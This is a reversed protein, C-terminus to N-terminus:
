KQKLLRKITLIVKEDMPEMNSKFRAAIRGKRDILFKNFNWSIEGGFPSNTTDTLFAYLPAIDNGKVSIKSFLPFTVGYESQCFKKIEENTGPEQQKFNNAPFGLVVFGSDKFMQYLQELGKYQPTFGCKSAVNVILMVKGKFNALSVDNGDIDKVVFDYITKKQQPQTKQKNGCGFNLIVLLFVASLLIKTRM